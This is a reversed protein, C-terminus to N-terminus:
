PQRADDLADKRASILADIVLVDGDKEDAIEVLLQREGRYTFYVKQGKQLTVLSESKPWLRLDMVGPVELSIPLLSRNDLRLDAAAATLPIAALALAVLAAPAFRLTPM